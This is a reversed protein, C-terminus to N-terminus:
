VNTSDGLETLAWKLYEINNEIKQLTAKTIKLENKSCELDPHCTDMLHRLECIISDAEEGIILRLDRPTILTGLQRTSM